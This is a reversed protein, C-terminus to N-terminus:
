EKVDETLRRCSVDQETAIEVWDPPVDCRKALDIVDQITSTNFLYINPQVHVGGDKQWAFRLEIPERSMRGGEQLGQPYQALDSDVVRVSQYSLRGRINSM